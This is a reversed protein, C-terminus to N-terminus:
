PIACYTRRPNHENGNAKVLNLQILKNLRYQIIGQSKGVCEAIQKKSMEGNKSLCLMIQRELEDLQALDQKEANKEIKKGQLLQRAVINNRLVLKFYGPTESFTPEDLSSGKMEDYIRPVGENLDRGWKHPIRLASVQFFRFFVYM